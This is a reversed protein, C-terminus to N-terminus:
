VVEVEDWNYWIDKTVKYEKPNLKEIHEQVFAGDHFIVVFEVFILNEYTFYVIDNEYIEKGNKDYCGIYQAVSSPTVEFIEREPTIINYYIRALGLPVDKADQRKGKYFSGYVWEKTDTRQGKFKIEKM